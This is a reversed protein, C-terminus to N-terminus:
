DFRDSFAFMGFMFLYSGVLLICQKHPDGRSFVGWEEGVVRGAAAPPDRVVVVRKTLDGRTYISHTPPGETEFFPINKLLLM